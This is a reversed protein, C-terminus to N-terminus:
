LVFGCKDAMWTHLLARDADSVIDANVSGHTLLGYFNFVGYRGGTTRFAGLQLQNPLRKDTRGNARGDSWYVAAVQNQIWTSLNNNHRMATVNALIAPVGDAFSSGTSVRYYVSEPTSNSDISNTIYGAWAPSASLNINAGFCVNAVGLAGPSRYGNAASTFEIYPKGGGTRYASGGGFSTLHHGNGSQDDIRNVLDGDATVPDTGAFDKWLSSQISIDYIGDLPGITYALEAPLEFAPAGGGGGGSGKGEPPNKGWGRSGFQVGRYSSNVGIGRATLTALRAQNIAHYNEGM